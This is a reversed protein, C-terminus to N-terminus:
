TYNTESNMWFTQVSKSFLQTESIEFFFHCVMDTPVFGVPNVPVNPLIERIINATEIARSM